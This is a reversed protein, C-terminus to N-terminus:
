RARRVRCCRRRHCSPPAAARRPRGRRLWAGARRARSLEGAVRGHRPALEGAGHVARDVDDGARLIEFAVIIREVGIEDHVSYQARAELRRQFAQRQRREFPQAAAVRRNESDIQGGAPRGVFGGCGDGARNKGGIGDDGEGRGFRRVDKALQRPAPILGDDDRGDARGIRRNHGREADVPGARRESQRLRRACGRGVLAVEAVHEHDAAGEAAGAALGARRGHRSQRRQAGSRPKDGGRNGRRRQRDHRRKRGLQHRPREGRGRGALDGCFFRAGSCIAASISPLVTSAM